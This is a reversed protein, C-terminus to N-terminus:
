NYKAMKESSFRYTKIWRKSWISNRLIAYECRRSTLFSHVMLRKSMDVIIGAHALCKGFRFIPIDGNGCENNPIQDGVKELEECIYNGAGAHLNWDKPYMRLEYNRLYGLRQAIGILLGTCDAGNMTTGRHRYKVEIWRRAELAFAEQLALTIALNARTSREENKTSLTHNM